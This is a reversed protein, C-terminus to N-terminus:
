GNRLKQMIETLCKLKVYLSYFIVIITLICKYKGHKQRPDNEKKRFLQRQKKEKLTPRSTLFEKLRQKDSVSKIDGM